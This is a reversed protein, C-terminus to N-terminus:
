IEILPSLHVFAPQCSIIRVADLLHVSIFYFNHLINLVKYWGIIGQNKLSTALFSNNDYFATIKPKLINNALTNQNHYYIFLLQHPRHYEYKPVAVPSGSFWKIGQTTIFNLITNDSMNQRKLDTVKYKRPACMKCRFAFTM